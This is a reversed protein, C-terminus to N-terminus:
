APAVDGPLAALLAEAARRREGPAYHLLLRRRGGGDDVTVSVTEVPARVLRSTMMRRIEVVVTADSRGPALALSSRELADGLDEAFDSLDPDAPAVEVYFSRQRGFTRAELARPVGLLLASLLM